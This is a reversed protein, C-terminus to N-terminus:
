KVKERFPVTPLVPLDVPLPEPHKKNFEELKEEDTYQKITTGNM